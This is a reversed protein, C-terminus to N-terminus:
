AAARSGARLYLERWAAVFTDIDAPVTDWGLSVRVASLAIADPVGM